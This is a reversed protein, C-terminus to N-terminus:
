KIVLGKGTLKVEKSGGSGQYVTGKVAVNKGTRQPIPVFPQGLMEVFITGGSSDSVNMWCGSPCESSIKGEVVVEKDLYKQPSLLISAIPTKAASEDPADGFREIGPGCGYVFGPLLLLVLIFLNFKNKM